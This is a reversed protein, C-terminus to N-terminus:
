QKKERLMARISNMADKAKSDDGYDSSGSSKLPFYKPGGSSRLIFMEGGNDANPRDDPGVEVGVVDKYFWESNNSKSQVDDEINYDVEYSMIQNEAYLIFLFSRTNAIYGGNSAKRYRKPHGSIGGSFSWLWDTERILDNKTVNLADMAVPIIKNAFNEYTDEIDQDSPCGKIGVMFIIVAVAAFLLVGLWAQVVDHSYAIYGAVITALISYMMWKLMTPYNFYKKADAASIVGNNIPADPASSVNAKSMFKDKFVYGLVALLILVGALIPVLNGNLFSTNSSSETQTSSSSDPSAQSMVPVETKEEVAKTNKDIVEKYSNIADKYSSALCQNDDNCKRLNFYLTRNIESSSQADLQRAKSYIENNTANLNALNQDSCILQELSSAANSCEFLNDAYAFSSLLVYFLFIILKKL